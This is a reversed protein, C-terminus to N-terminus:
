RWSNFLHVLNIRLADREKKILCALVWFLSLDVAGGPDTWSIEYETGCYWTDASTPSIFTLSAPM